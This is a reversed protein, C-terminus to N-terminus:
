GQAGEAAPRVENCSTIAANYDQLRLQCAAMNALAPARVAQAKDLHFGELQLLLDENLFSLALRCPGPLLRALQIWTGLM